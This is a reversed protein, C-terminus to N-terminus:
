TEIDLGFLADNIPTPSFWSTNGGLSGHCGSNSRSHLGFAVRSGASTLWYWGGGSDGGCADLGVVRVMGRVAPDSTSDVVGCFNFGNPQTYNASLCVHDGAWIYSWTPASYVNPVTRGPFFENYIQGDNLLAHLWHTVTIVAADYAWWDFSTQMTGITTPGTGWTVGNGNSCHGATYVRRQNAANRATFGLSCVDNGVFTRWLRVGSRLTTDCNSRSTCVDAEVDAKPDAILVVDLKRAEEALKGLLQEPVAVVVSNREVSIGVQGRAAKGLTGEGRGLREAKAQLEGFSHEVQHTQVKIGLEAGYRQALEGVERDTVAVHLIGSPPDFWAGGFSKEYRGLVEDYLKKRADQQEAAAKAAEESMRPYARQYAAVAAALPEGSDGPGQDGRREQAGAGGTALALLAAVVAVICLVRLNRKRM